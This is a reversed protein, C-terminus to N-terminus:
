ENVPQCSMYRSLPSSKIQAKDWCQLEQRGKGNNCRQVKCGMNLKRERPEGRAPHDKLLNVTQSSKQQYESYRENETKTM